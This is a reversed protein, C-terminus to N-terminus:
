RYLMKTIIHSGYVASYLGGTLLSVLYDDKSGLAQCSYFVGIAIAILGLTFVIWHMWIKM